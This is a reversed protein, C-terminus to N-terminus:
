WLGSDERSRTQGILIWPSSGRGGTGLCLYLSTVKESKNLSSLTQPSSVPWQWQSLPEPLPLPWHEYAKPWLIASEPTWNQLEREAGGDCLCTLTSVPPLVKIKSNIKDERQKQTWVWRLYGSWLMLLTWLLNLFFLFLNVMEDDLFPFQDEAGVISLLM